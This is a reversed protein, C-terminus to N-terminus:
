YLIKHQLKALKLATIASDLFEYVGLYTQKGNLQIQVVYKQFTKNYSIGKIGTSNNKRLGQNQMNQKHTVHRLNKKRNDLTNRNIHDVELHEPPNSIERHMWITKYTRHGIPEKRMAYSGNCCWKFQNIRVFDKDDVLAFKGKTLKIIQM